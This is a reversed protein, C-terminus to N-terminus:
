DVPKLFSSPGGGEEGREKREKGGKGKREKCPWTPACPRRRVCVLLAKRRLQTGAWGDRRDWLV